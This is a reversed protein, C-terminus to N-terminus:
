GPGQQLRHEGRQRIHQFVRQRFCVRQRFRIRKHQRFLQIRFQLRCAFRRLAAAALAASIFKTTKKM